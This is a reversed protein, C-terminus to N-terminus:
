RAGSGSRLTESLVGLQRTASWGAPPQENHSFWTMGNRIWEARLQEHTKFEDHLGFETGCCPCIYYPEPPDSLNADAFFCVPCQNVSM